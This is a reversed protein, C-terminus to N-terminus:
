RFELPILVMWSKYGRKQYYVKNKPDITDDLEYYYTAIDLAEQYNKCQLSEM